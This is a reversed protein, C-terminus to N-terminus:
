RNRLLSVVWIFCDWELTQLWPLTRWVRHWWSQIKSRWWLFIPIDWETLRDLNRFRSLITWKCLWLRICQLKQRVDGRACVCVYRQLTQGRRMVGLLSNRKVLFFPKCKVREGGRARARTGRIVRMFLVNPLWLKYHQLQRQDNEYTSRVLPLLQRRSQSCM